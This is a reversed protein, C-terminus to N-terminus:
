IPTTVYVISANTTYHNHMHVKSGLPTAPELGHSFNQVEKLLASIKYAVRFKAASVWNLRLTHIPHKQLYKGLHLFHNIVACKSLAQVATFLYFVGGICPYTHAAKVYFHLIVSITLSHKLLYILYWIFGGCRCDGQSKKWMDNQDCSAVM